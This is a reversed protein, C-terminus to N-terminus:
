FPIKVAFKGRFKDFSIINWLQVYSICEVSDDLNIPPEANAPGQKM